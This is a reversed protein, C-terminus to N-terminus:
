QANKFRNQFRSKFENKKVEKQEPSTNQWQKQKERAKAQASEKAAAKDTSSMGQWQSLMAQREETSLQQWMVDEQSTGAYSFGSFATMSASLLIAVLLSNHSYHKNNFVSM